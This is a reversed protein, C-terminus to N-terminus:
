GPATLREVAPRCLLEALLVASFLSLLGIALSPGLFSPDALNSLTRVVGILVGLAAGAYLNRRLSRIVSVAKASSTVHPSQRFLVGIARLGVLFDTVGFTMIGVALAWGVVVLIAPLYVYNSIDGVRGMAWFLFVLALALGVLGSIRM